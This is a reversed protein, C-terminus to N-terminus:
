GLHLFKITSLWHVTNFCLLVVSAIKVKFVNKIKVVVPQLGVPPIKFLIKGSCPNININSLNVMSQFNQIAINNHVNLNKVLSCTSEMSHLETALSIFTQKAKATYQLWFSLCKLVVPLGQVM